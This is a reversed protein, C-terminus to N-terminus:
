TSPVSETRKANKQAKYGTGHADKQYVKCMRAEGNNSPPTDPQEKSQNLFQRISTKLPTTPGGDALGYSMHPRVLSMMLDWGFDFKKVKNKRTNMAFIAQSNVRAM